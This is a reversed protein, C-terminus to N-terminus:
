STARAAKVPLGQETVVGDHIFVKQLRELPVLKLGRLMWSDRLVLIDRM